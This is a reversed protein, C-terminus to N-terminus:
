GIIEPGDAFRGKGHFDSNKGHCYETHPQGIEKNVEPVFVYQPYPIGHEDVPDEADNYEPIIKHFIIRKGFVLLFPLAPKNTQAERNISIIRYDKGTVESPKTLM